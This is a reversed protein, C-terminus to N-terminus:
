QKPVIIEDDSFKYLYHDAFVEIEVEITDSLDNSELEANIINNKYVLSITDNINSVKDYVKYTAEKKTGEVEISHEIEKVIRDNKFLTYKYENEDTESEQEVVFYDKNNLYFKLELEFENNEVEKTGKVQYNNGDIIIMGDIKSNVQDIDDFDKDTTENYYFDYSVLDGTTDTYSCKMLVKYNKNDSEVLKIDFNEKNMLMESAVLANQIKDALEKNTLKDLKARNVIANNSNVDILSAGSYLEYGIMTKLKTVEFLSDHSDINEGKGIFKPIFLLLVVVLVTSILTFLPVLRTKRKPTKLIVEEKEELPLANDFDIKSLIQDTLDPYEIKDAKAKIIKVVDKKNM